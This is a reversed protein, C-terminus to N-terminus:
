TLIQLAGALIGFIFLVVLMPPRLSKATSVGWVAGPINCTPDSANGGLYGYSADYWPTQAYPCMFQLSAPCNQVLPFCIDGCPLIENYPEPKIVDNIMPSRSQNFGRFM